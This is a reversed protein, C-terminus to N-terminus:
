PHSPKGFKGSRHENEMLRLAAFNLIVSSTFCSTGIQFPIRHNAFQNHLYTELRQVEPVQLEKVTVINRPNGTRYVKEPKTTLIITEM